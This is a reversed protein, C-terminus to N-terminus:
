TFIQEGKVSSFTNCLAEDETYFTTEPTTAVIVIHDLNKKPRSKTYNGTKLDQNNQDTDLLSIKITPNSKVRGNPCKGIRKRQKESDVSSTLVLSQVNPQTDIIANEKARLTIPLKGNTFQDM